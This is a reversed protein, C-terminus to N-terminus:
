ARHQRERIAAPQPGAFHRPQSGAFNVAILHDNADHLRFAALVPVHHKRGLDEVQQPLPPLRPWFPTVGANRPFVTPQKGTADITLRRSRALEAPQELLRCFGRPQALRDGKMRQTMGECGMQELVARVNPQNLRQKSVFLEVRRRAVGAHRYSEDGLDLARERAQARRAVPLRLSVGLLRRRSLAGDTMTRGTSSTASMRRSCPGAQRSALRPWALRSWSFTILAISRQRVAASPPWTARQSFAAHPWVCM